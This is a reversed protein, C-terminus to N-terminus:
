GAHSTIKETIMTALNFFSKSIAHEPHKIPFAVGMDSALMLDPLLPLEGLFDVRWKHALNKGGNHGFMHHKKDCQDCIFYSMNEVLGLIPIQLQQFMAIAKAADILALEQPTTVVVIGALPARQVLTLQADGTGPPLDVVLLDIPTKDDGTNAADGADGAWDVKFLLETLASMVMPGRWITPKDPSVLYGISMTAIGHFNVPQLMQTKEMTTANPKTTSTAKVEQNGTLRPLSPGYIDADLLAIKKGLLSLALALNLAVTSKGVGGKGSAVAVIKKVAPIPKQEAFPNHPMAKALPEVSKEISLIVLSQKIKPNKKALTEIKQKLNQYPQLQRSANKPIALVVQLVGNRLSLTEILAQPIQQATQVQQCLKTVAQITAEDSLKTPTQLFRPMPFIFFNPPLM